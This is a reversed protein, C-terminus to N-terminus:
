EGTILKKLADRDPSLLEAVRASNVSAVIMEGVENKVADFIGGAMMAQTQKENDPTPSVYHVSVGDYRHILFLHLLTMLRKRRLETAYTNQDRVSLICRGRRDLIQAFVVAAVKDGGEGLVSLELVDSGPTHPRLEVSLKQHVERAEAWSNLWGALLSTPVETQILHQVQTSGKGMAQTTATRGSSASLAADLRPGGVHTQPTRYPSEILRLKRQLRALALMGDQRLATAFEDSALGDVQHGGYTIFNFVFNLKGLEAPFASMEEDSMGTTDWNFSPSLNYALMQEPYRALIADSFKKADALDATKTEMWLIDAFPAVALSRATAYEIGGRIPYYGEPTRALEADWAVNLAMERARETAEALSVASSWDLWEEISLDFTAGEDKRFAMARAVAEIYTFLGAETQWTDFLQSTIPELVAEISASPDAVLARARANSPM